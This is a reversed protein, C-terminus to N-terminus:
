FGGRMETLFRTYNSTADVEEEFSAPPQADGLDDDIALLARLSATLAESESKEEDTTARGEGDESGPEVATLGKMSPILTM